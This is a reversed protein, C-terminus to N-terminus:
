RWTRSWACRITEDLLPGVLDRRYASSARRPSSRFTAHELLARRCLGLSEESLPKGVLPGEAEIARRPTPGSPAAAIRASTVVQGARRLWASLNIIPLAVGQPRMIRAFASAEFPGCLPLHFGVILESGARITTEGPGKFVTSVSQRRSGAQSAIEAVADLAVLAITGDAAPLGHAVNGGLTAVNRVQPGGILDCAEALAQAHRRVLSDGAIKSLPVASGIFLVDGRVELATMERVSTLDVLTAAPFHRGQALDLLLDTGGAIPAAPLPGDRLAGLAESLTQPRVYHNWLNM